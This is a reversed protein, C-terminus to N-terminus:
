LEVQFDLVDVEFWRQVRLIGVGFQEILPFYLFCNAKSFDAWFIAKKHSSIGGWFKGLGKLFYGLYSIKV